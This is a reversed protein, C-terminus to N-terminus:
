PICNLCHKSLFKYSCIDKNKFFSIYQIPIRSKSSPVSSVSSNAIRLPFLLFLLIFIVAYIFTISFVFCRLNYLVDFNPKRFLDVFITLVKGLNVVLLFFFLSLSFLTLNSFDLIFSLVDNVFKCFCFSIRLSYQPFSYHIFVQFSVSLCLQCLSFNFIQTSM